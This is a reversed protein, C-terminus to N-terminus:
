AAADVPQRRMGAACLVVGALGLAVSAILALDSPYITALVGFVLLLMGAGICLMGLRYRANGRILGILIGIPVLILGITVPLMGLTMSVTNSRVGGSLALQGAILLFALGLLVASTRM